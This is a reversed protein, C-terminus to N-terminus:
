NLCGKRRDILLKVKWSSQKRQVKEIVPNWLSIKASGLCLPMGPYTAPLGGVRCGMINAYKVLLHDEVGIWILESKFFNVKLGSAAEFCIVTAKVNRLQGEDVECHSEM